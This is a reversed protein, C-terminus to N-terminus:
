DSLICEILPTDVEGHSRYSLLTCINCSEAM